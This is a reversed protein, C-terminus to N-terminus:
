RNDGSGKIANRVKRSRLKEANTNAIDQLSLGLEEAFVAIYWLVDGLEKKIDDKDIASPDSNQDRIIKKIKEAVEGSEGALGLSWHCIDLMKNGSLVATTLAQKQYENFSLSM